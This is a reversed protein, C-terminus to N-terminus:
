RCRASLSAATRHQSGLCALKQFRIVPETFLQVSVGVTQQRFLKGEAATPLLTIASFSSPVPEQGEKEKMM